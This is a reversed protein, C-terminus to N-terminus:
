APKKKTAKKKAKSKAMDSFNEIDRILKSDMEAKKRVEYRRRSMM